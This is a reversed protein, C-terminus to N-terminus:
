RGRDAITTVDAADAADAPDAGGEVAGAVASPREQGPVVDPGAALATEPAPEQDSERAVLDRSLLVLAGAFVVSGLAWVTMPGPVGASWWWEPGASLNFSWSANGFVYRHMNFYLSLSQAGAIAAVALWRQGVSVTLTRGDLRCLVTLVLLIMLPLVYRPQVYAGVPVGTLYQIYAPVLWAALAACAVAVGQLRPIGRIGAVLVTLFLGFMVTWVVAPVGTDLWGLGWAGLAGSWLAPVDALIRMVFSFSFTVKEAGAVASAQGVTLFCYGSLAALVVPYVARRLYGREPRFTVILAAGIGLAAYLAADGRSGAGLGVAVALLGGSLLLRRRDEALVHVLCSLFVAFASTFTWSSPNVSPIIFTALPVLTVAVTIVLARRMGPAALAFAAAVVTVFVLANFLRMAIVSAEIDEGVFVSMVAYFVPPYDGVFDGRETDVMRDGPDTVSTGQCGASVEPHFAYCPADHLAAPVRRSLSSAGEECVGEREGQGCWISTLHYNDDPSSGVPSAVAWAALSAFLLVAGLLRVFVPRGM